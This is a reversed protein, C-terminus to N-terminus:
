RGGPDRSEVDRRYGEAIAAILRLADMAAHDVIGDRARNWDVADGDAVALALTELERSTM